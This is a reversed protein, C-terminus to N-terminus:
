VGDFEVRIGYIRVTMNTTASVLRARVLYKFHSNDVTQFEAIAAPTSVGAVQFLGEAEFPDRENAPTALGPISILTTTTTDGIPQRLLQVLFTFINPPTPAEDRGGVVILKRLRAGNPLSLPLWGECTGGAAKTAFGITFAWPPQPDAPLFNPPFTLVRREGGTSGLQDAIAILADRLSNHYRSDIVHGDEATPINSILTEVTSPM